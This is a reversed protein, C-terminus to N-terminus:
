DETARRVESATLYAKRKGGSRNYLATQGYQDTIYDEDRRWVPAGDKRWLSQQEM